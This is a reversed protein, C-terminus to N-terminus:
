VPSGTPKLLRPGRLSNLGQPQQRRALVSDLWRGYVQQHQLQVRATRNVSYRSYMRTVEACTSSLRHRVPRVAETVNTKCTALHCLVRGARRGWCAALLYAWGLRVTRCRDPQATSVAFYSQLQVLILVCIYIYIYIYKYAHAYTYIYISLSLSLSKFKKMNRRM